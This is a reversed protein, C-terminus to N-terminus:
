WLHIILCSTPHFKKEEHKTYATSIYSEVREGEIFSLLFPLIALWQLKSTKDLMGDIELCAIM